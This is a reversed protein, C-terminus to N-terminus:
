YEVHEFHGHLDDGLGNGVDFDVAAITHAVVASNNGEGGVATALLVVVFNTVVDDDVFRCLFDMDVWHLKIIVSCLVSHFLKIYELENSIPTIMHTELSVFIWRM